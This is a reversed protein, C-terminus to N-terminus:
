KLHLTRSVERDGNYTLTVVIEDLQDIVKATADEQFELEIRFRDGLKPLVQQSVPFLVILERGDQNPQWFKAEFEGVKSHVSAGQRAVRVAYVNSVPLIDEGCGRTYREFRLHVKTVTIAANATCRVTVDFSLQRSDGLAPSPKVRALDDILLGGSDVDKKLDAASSGKPPHGIEGFDSGGDKAPRQTPGTARLSAYVLWGALGLLPLCVAIFRWSVHPGYGPREATQPIVGTAQLGAPHEASFRTLALNKPNARRAGRVLDGSWGEREATEILTFVVARFDAPGVLTDLNRDLETRLMQRLTEPTFAECLADRLAKVQAGTM